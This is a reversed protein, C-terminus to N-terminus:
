TAFIPALFHRIFPPDSKNRASKRENTTVTEDARL